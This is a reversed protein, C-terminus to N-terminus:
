LVEATTQKNASLTSLSAPKILTDSQLRGDIFRIMRKTQLAINEDHTVLVITSGSSNLDRFIDLVEAGSRSDLNGTPEDGLILPPNGALVRAIATRQQQGGSLEAPLHHMRDFLGVAALAEKAMSTRKAQNIGRYILPLAVNELATLRPLLNFSQFIFGINKNRIEALEDDNKSLIHQGALFYDGGSPRDLCGLINMFTSKGSGSPGMVSVFEGYEIDININDLANVSINGSVYSKKLGRVSILM